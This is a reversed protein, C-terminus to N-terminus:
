FEMLIRLDLAQVLRWGRHFLSFSEELLGLEELRAKWFFFFVPAQKM